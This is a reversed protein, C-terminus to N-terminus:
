KDMEGPKKVFFGPFLVMRGVPHDITKGPERPSLRNFAFLDSM